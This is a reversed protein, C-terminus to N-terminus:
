HTLEKWTKVQYKAWKGFNPTGDELFGIVIVSLDKYASPPFKFYYTTDLIGEGVICRLIGRKTKINQIKAIRRLFKGQKFVDFATAKKADSGDTFDRHHTAERILSGRRALAGEFMKSCDGLGNKIKYYEYDYNIKDFGPFAKSWIDKLIALEGAITSRNPKMTPM